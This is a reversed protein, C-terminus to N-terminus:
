GDREALGDLDDLPRGGCETERSAREGSRPELSKHHRIPLTEEDLM